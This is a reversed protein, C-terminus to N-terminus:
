LLSRMVQAIQRWCAVLLEPSCPSERSFTMAQILLVAGLPSTSATWAYGCWALHAPPQYQRDLLAGLEKSLVLPAHWAPDPLITLWDLLSQLHAVSALPLASLSSLAVRLIEPCTPGSYLSCLFLAPGRAREWTLRYGSGSLYEGMQALGGLCPAACDPCRAEPVEEAPGEKGSLRQTSSVVRVQSLHLDGQPRDQESCIKRCQPCWWLIHCGDALALPIQQQIRQQLRHAHRSQHDDYGSIIQAPIRKSM